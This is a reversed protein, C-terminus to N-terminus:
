YTNGDLEAVENATGDMKAVRVGLEPNAAYHAGIKAYTPEFSQCFGCWPAYVELLVDKEADLVLDRFTRRCLGTDAIWSLIAFDASTETSTNM